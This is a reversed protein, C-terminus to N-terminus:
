LVLWDDYKTSWKGFQNMEDIVAQMKKIAQQGFETLSNDPNYYKDRDKESNIVYILGIKNENPGRLSKVLYAKWGPNHKELESILKNQFQDLFQDMSVGPKLEITLVHMGVLNGKILSQCYVSGALILISTLVILKKMIKFIQFTQLM